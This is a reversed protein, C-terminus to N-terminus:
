PRSRELLRSIAAAATLGKAQWAALKTAAAPTLMVAVQKGGAAARESRSRSQRVADLRKIPLGVRECEGDDPLFEWVGRDSVIETGVVGQAVKYEAASIIGGTEDLLRSGDKHLVLTGVELSGSENRYHGKLIHVM